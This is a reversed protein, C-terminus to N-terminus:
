WIDLDDILSYMLCRITYQSGIFPRVSDSDGIRREVVLDMLQFREDLVCYSEDLATVKNRLKTLAVDITDEVHSLATYGEELDPSDEYAWAELYITVELTRTDLGQGLEEHGRMIVVHGDVGVDLHQPLVAGMTVPIHCNEEEIARRLAKM